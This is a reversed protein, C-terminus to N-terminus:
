QGPSHKCVTRHGLYRGLPETETVCIRTLPTKYVLRAICISTKVKKGKGQRHKSTERVRATVDYLSSNQHCRKNKGPAYGSIQKPSTYFNQPPAVVQPSIFIIM